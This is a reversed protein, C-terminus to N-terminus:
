SKKEANWKKRVKIIESPFDVKMQINKGKYGIHQIEKPQLLKIM